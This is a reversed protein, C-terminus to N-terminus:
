IDKSLIQTFKHWVHMVLSWNLKLLCLLYNKLTVSFSCTIAFFPSPARWGSGVRLGDRINSRKWIDPYCSLKISNQFLLILPKLLSKGCSKIMRISIDDLIHAKHINLRRIIKLKWKWQVRFFGAKVSNFTKSERSTCQQKEFTHMTRCFIDNFVNAKTKM